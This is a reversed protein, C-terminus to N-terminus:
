QLHFREQLRQESSSSYQTLFNSPHVNSIFSTHELLRPLLDHNVPISRQRHSGLCLKLTRFPGRVTMVSAETGSDSQSDYKAPKEKSLRKLTTGADGDLVQVRIARVAREILAQLAPGNGGRMIIELHGLRLVATM